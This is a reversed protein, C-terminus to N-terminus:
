TRCREKIAKPAFYRAVQGRKRRHIEGDLFFFSVQDPDDLDMHEAGAGGQRMTPNQLIARAFGFDTVVKAGTIPKVREAALAATRREDSGHKVPCVSANTM